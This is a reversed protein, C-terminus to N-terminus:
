TIVLKAPSNKAVKLKWSTRHLLLLVDVPNEELAKALNAACEQKPNPIDIISDVYELYSYLQGGGKLSTFVIIKAKPYLIRLAYLAKIAIVCDGVQEHTREVGIVSPYFKPPYGNISPSKYQTTM